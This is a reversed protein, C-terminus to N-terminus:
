LFNDASITPKVDEAVPVETIMQTPTDSAVDSNKAGACVIDSIIDAVMEHSQAVLLNEGLIERWGDVVSQKKGNYTNQVHIHYIEYSESALALLEAASSTKYDSSFDSGRGMLNQVAGKPLTNLTPEDGITFLFGKQGRKTFSEIVTHNAAYYWALLYSEGGNGGGGSEIYTTTLWKDLLEDSSEFQGVQLPAQDCEHDGIGLFLVQPDPVGNGIINDMMTPLGDKVLEHPVQGMSGTLDLGIIVPVSNPHEDSDCSERLLAKNPAMESDLSRSTFIENASKTYYGSTAARTSRMSSSYGGGGM